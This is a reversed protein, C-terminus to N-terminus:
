LPHREVRGIPRKSLWAFRLLLIVAVATIGATLAWWYGASGLGRAQGLEIALPLAFLWYAIVNSYFPWRTDGAGRLAGASVTQIGDCVSFAAAILLLKSGVVQASPDAPAFLEALRAHFIAYASGCVAMFVAGAGIGLLGARRAASTDGAGVRYGVRATTANALGVACMYSFSALTLAIQHGSLEVEGQRAIQTAVFTFIGVEMSLQVGIPWGLRAVRGIDRARAETRTKLSLDSATALILVLLLYTASTSWGAGVAGLAPAGFLGFVLVASLGAHFLNAWVIARMVPVPRGLNSLYARLVGYTCTLLLGPLSSWLYIRTRVALAVPVGLPEFLQMSVATLLGVPLWAAISAYLGQWLWARARDGENAGVAQSVLPEIGMGIGIGFVVIVGSVSNGLSLAAVDLSSVRGLMLTDIVVILMYGGQALMLPAALVLISRLESV